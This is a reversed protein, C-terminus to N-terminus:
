PRLLEMECRIAPTSALAVDGTLLTASLAEALAIYAADYSTANDRLEWCRSILPEHAARTVPLQQLDMVAMVARRDELTGRRHLRRIVSLVELDLIQPALLRAGRLRHRVADGAPGDDALAVVVVSADVVIATKM